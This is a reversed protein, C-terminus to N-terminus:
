RQRNSNQDEKVFVGGSDWHVSDPNIKDKMQDQIFVGMAVFDFPKSFVKVFPSQRKVSLEGTVLVLPVAGNIRKAVDFGTTDPLRYDIFILDPEGSAVARLADEPDTFTQIEIDPLRRFYERFVQCIDPEDDIFFVKFPM